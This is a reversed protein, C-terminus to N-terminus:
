CEIRGAGRGPGPQWAPAFYYTLQSSRVKTACSGDANIQMLTSRYGFTAEDGRKGPLRVYALREGSPDWSPFLEPLGPTHTLRRMGSGDANLVYLDLDESGEGGFDDNRRLLAIKSGDPPYVPYEGDDALRRMGSGDLALAVPQPELTLPGDLTALLTSGDPSFSYGAWEHEDKWPMLQRSAGTLLDVTWITSGEFGDKWLKGGVTIPSSEDIARTFALTRGDPSYTPLSAGKTGAIPQRGSGDAAVSFLKWIPDDDEGNGVGVFASFVIAEGDPSWAPRSLYNPFPRSRVGGGALKVPGGGNPNVNLMQLGPSKGGSLKFVALRPGAPAAAPAAASSLLLAMATVVLGKWIMRLM